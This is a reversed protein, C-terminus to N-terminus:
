FSESQQASGHSSIPNMFRFTEAPTLLYCRAWSLDKEAHASNVYLCLDSAAYESIELHSSPLYQLPLLKLGHPIHLLMGVM